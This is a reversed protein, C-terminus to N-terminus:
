PSQPSMMKLLLLSRPVRLVPLLPVEDQPITGGHPIIQLPIPIPENFDMDVPEAKAKKKLLEEKEIHEKMSLEDTPNSSGTIVIDEDFPIEHHPNGEEKFLAEM